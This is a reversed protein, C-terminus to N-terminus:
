PAIRRVQDVFQLLNANGGTVNRDHDLRRPILQCKGLWRRLRDVRQIFDQDVQRALRHIKVVRRQDFLQDALALSEFVHLLGARPAPVTRDAFRDAATASALLM